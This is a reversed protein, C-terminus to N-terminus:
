RPEDIIQIVLHLIQHNFINIFSSENLHVYIIPLNISKVERIQVNLSRSAMEFQLNVLTLRHFKSYNRICLMCEIPLPDLSFCENKHQIWPSICFCFRNFTLNTKSTNKENSSMRGLDVSRTFLLIRLWDTSKKILEQSHIYYTM